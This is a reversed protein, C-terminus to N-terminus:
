RKVSAPKRLVLRRGVQLYSELSRILDDVVARRRYLDELNVRLFESPIQSPPFVLKSSM